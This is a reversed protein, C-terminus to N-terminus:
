FGEMQFIHKQSVYEWPEMNDLVFYFVKERYYQNSKRHKYRNLYCYSVLWLKKKHM